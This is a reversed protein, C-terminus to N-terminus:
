KFDEYAQKGCEDMQQFFGISLDLNRQDITPTFDSVSISNSYDLDLLYQLTGQELILPWVREGITPVTGYQFTWALQDITRMSGAIIETNKLDSQNIFAVQNKANIGVEEMRGPIVSIYDVGYTVCKLATSCDSLGTVNVDVYQQLEKTISLIPVQPAIKLGIRTVGDSLKAVSKAYLLVEEASMTSSPCQIYVVGKNDQRIESVLKCLETTHDFWEQLKLKGIKFFANPNTTIGAVLTRDVSPSLEAWTKRIFEINATDFFFKKM